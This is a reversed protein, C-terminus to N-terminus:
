KLPLLHSFGTSLRPWWIRKLPKPICIYTCLIGYHKTRLDHMGDVKSGEDRDLFFRLCQPDMFISLISQWNDNFTQQILITRTQKNSPEPSLVFCFKLPKGQAENMNFLEGPKLAKPDKQIVFKTPELGM